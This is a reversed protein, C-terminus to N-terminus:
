NKVKGKKNKVGPIKVVPPIFFTIIIIGSIIIAFFATKRLENSPSTLQELEPKQKYSTDSASPTTPPYHHTLM